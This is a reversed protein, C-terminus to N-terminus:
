ATQLIWNERYLNVFAQYSPPYRYAKTKKLAVTPPEESYQARYTDAIHRNVWFRFASDHILSNPDNEREGGHNLMERVTLWNPLNELDQPADKRTSSCASLRYIRDLDTSTPLAKSETSELGVISHFLKRSGMGM